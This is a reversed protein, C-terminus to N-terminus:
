YYRAHKSRIHEAYTRVFAMHSDFLSRDSSRWELRHNTLFVFLTSNTCVSPLQLRGNNSQIRDVTIASTYEMQHTMPCRPPVTGHAQHVYEKFSRHTSFFEKAGSDILLHYLYIYEIFLEM